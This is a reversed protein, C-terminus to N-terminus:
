TSCNADYFILGNLTGVAVTINLFMLLAVFLTGIGMSIVVVPIVRKYWEMCCPICWSSGHSLSLGPQCLSCLLGSRNNACQADSGNVLSFNIHINPNSPLCYDLPCYPYILLVGSNPCDGTNYQYDNNIFPAHVM